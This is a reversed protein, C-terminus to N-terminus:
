NKVTWTHAAWARTPLANELRNSVMNAETSYFMGMVLVQDTAHRVVQRLTEMRPEWPVTAYFRDIMGDYEPNLYRPYNFGGTTRFSNEPLRARSSHIRTIVELRPQRILEFGPFTARYEAEQSRALPVTHPEMAIGARQWNDAVSLMTKNNETLTTSRIEMGLRRGASDAYTGDAGRTYGLGEIMQAARSPDYEYRPAADQIESYERLDPSIVAHAVLALGPQFTNAMEQRDVAHLLARRFQVNGIVPPNPTLLQPFAVIPSRDGPVWKGDPWAVHTVEDLSFNREGMTMDVSGALLNALLTGGDPIFRVEIEDIRPRGLVYHDNAVLLASSGRAWERVRYPGSGIFETSWYPHDTFTTKEEDYVRELVHKPLPIVIDDNHAKGFMTDADIYPQKWHAVITSPDTSEVRDLSALAAHNFLPVERDQGVRVGFVVDEATLRSGDHWRVGPRLRWTTEMRGDPLVKWLGNDLSPVAEALIPHLVGKDDTGTLGASVLRDLATAGPIITNLTKSLTPLDARVAITIRTPRQPSSPAGGQQPSSTSAPACAALLLLSLVVVGRGLGGGCPPLPHKLPNNGGRGRRPLFDNTGGQHPLSDSDGGGRRPLTLSPTRAM